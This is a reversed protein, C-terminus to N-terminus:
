MSSAIAELQALSTPPNAMIEVVLGGNLVLGVFSEGNASTTSDAVAATTGDISVFSPTVAQPVSKAKEGALWTAANDPPLLPYELIEVGSSPYWLEVTHAVPSASSDTYSYTSM